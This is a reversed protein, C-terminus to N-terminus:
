NEIFRKFRVLDLEAQLEAAAVFDPLRPKEESAREQWTLLLRVESQDERLPSFWVEGAQAMDDTPLSKWAILRGPIELSLEAMGTTAAGEPAIRPVRIMSPQMGSTTRRHGTGHETLRRTLDRWAQYLRIAPRNVTVAKVLRRTQTRPHDLPM